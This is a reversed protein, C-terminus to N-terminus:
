HKGARRRVWLIIYLIVGLTSLVFLVFLLIAIVVMGDCGAVIWPQPEPPYPPAVECVIPCDRCSCTVGDIPEDCPRVREYLPYFTRDNPKVPGEVLKFNLTFPSFYAADSLLEKVNCDLGSRLCLTSLVSMTTGPM